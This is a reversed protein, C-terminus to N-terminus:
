TQIELTQNGLHLSSPEGIIDPHLSSPEGIIGPHLSNAALPFYGDSRLKCGKTLVPTRM